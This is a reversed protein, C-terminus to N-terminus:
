NPISSNLCTIKWQTFYVSIPTKESGYKGTYPGFRHNEVLVPFYPDSFVQIRVYKEFHARQLKEVIKLM